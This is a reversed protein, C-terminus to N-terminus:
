GGGKKTVDPGLIATVEAHAILDDSVAALDKPLQARIAKATVGMAVYVCAWCRVGYRNIVEQLDEMIPNTADVLADESHGAGSLASAIGRTLAAHTRAVRDAYKDM